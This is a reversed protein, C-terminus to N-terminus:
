NRMRVLYLEETPKMRSTKVKIYELMVGFFEKEQPGGHHGLFRHWDDVLELDPHDQEVDVDLLRVFTRTSRHGSETVKFNPYVHGAQGFAASSFYSIIIELCTLPTVFIMYDLFPVRFSPRLQLRSVLHFLAEFRHRDDPLASPGRGMYRPDKVLSTLRDASLAPLSSLDLSRSGCFCLAFSISCLRSLASLDVSSDYHTRLIARDVRWNFLFRLASSSGSYLNAQLIRDAHTAILEFLVDLRDASADPFDNGLAPTDGIEREGKPLRFRWRDAQVSQLWQTFSHGDRLAMGRATEGAQGKPFRPSSWHFPASATPELDLFVQYEANTLARRAIELGPSLSRWEDNGYLRQHLVAQAARHFAPSDGSELDREIVDTVRRRTDDDIAKAAQPQILGFALSLADSGGDELAAQILETADAQAAYLLITERWWSDKAAERYDDIGPKGSTVWHCACLFEQFTLHSFAWQGTEQEVMLGSDAAVKALFEEQDEEPVGIRRLPDRIQKFASRMEFTRTHNTMMWAALPQLLMLKQDATFPDDIEKGQRWKELLVECISRYLQVRGGPLEGRFRHVMCIMTLLLPNGTLDLLAPVQSIRNELETSEAAARSEVTARSDRSHAGSTENALYWKSVFTSVQSPSFPQIQIAQGRNLPAIEYGKPRSTVLFRSKSYREIQSDVWASVKKRVRPDGVEDLGDLLVLCDGRQLHREFWDPTLDDKRSKFAFDRALAALTPPEKKDDAKSVPGAVDRLFLLVPIRARVRHRRQRNRAMVLLMHKLLTTKGSGPAGIVALAIGDREAARVFSWITRDESQLGEFLISAGERGDGAEEGVRLSVFVDELHLRKPNRQGLGMDEFLEHANGVRALYRRTLGPRIRSIQRRVFSATAEVADKELEEKWVTRFFSFAFSGLEWVVFALAGLGASLPSEKLEDWFLTAALVVPAQLGAFALIQGVIGKPTNSM